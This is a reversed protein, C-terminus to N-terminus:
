ASTISCLNGFPEGEWIEKVLVFGWIQRGECVARWVWGWRGLARQPAPPAPAVFHGWAMNFWWWRLLDLNQELLLGFGFLSCCTVWYVIFEKRAPPVRLVKVLVNWRGTAGNLEVETRLWCSQLTLLCSSSGLLDFRLVALVLSLLAVPGHLIGM